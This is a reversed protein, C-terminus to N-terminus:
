SSGYPIPSTLFSPTLLRLGQPLLHQVPNRPPHNPPCIPSPHGQKPLHLFNPSPHPLHKTGQPPTPPSSPVIHRSPWITNVLLILLLNSPAKHSTSRLTSIPLGPLQPHSALVLFGRPSFVSSSPELAWLHAPGGRSGGNEQQRVQAEPPLALLLGLLLLLLPASCVRLLYLRGPPTMPLVQPPSLSLSHPPALHLHRGGAQRRLSLQGLSLAFRILSPSLICDPFGWPSCPSVSLSVSVRSPFLSSEHCFCLLHSLSLSFIVSSSDSPPSVLVLGM